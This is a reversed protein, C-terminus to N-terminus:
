FTDENRLITIAAEGVGYNIKEVIIKSLDMAGTKKIV